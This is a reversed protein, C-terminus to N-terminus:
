KDDQVEALNEFEEWNIQDPKKKQLLYLQLVTGASDTVLDTHCLSRLTSTINSTTITWSYDKKKLFHLRRRSSVLVYYGDDKLV